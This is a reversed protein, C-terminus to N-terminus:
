KRFIKSEIHINQLISIFTDQFFIYGIAIALIITFVSVSLSFLDGITNSFFYYFLISFLIYLSTFLVPKFALKISISLKKNLLLFAGFLAVIEGVLMSAAVSEISKFLFIAVGAIIISTSRLISSFMNNKTDAKAMAATAPSIRLFRFACAAALLTLVTGGNSYKNGFVLILINESCLMLPVMSIVAILSSIELCKCYDRSFTIADSQSHSLVPLMISLSINAMLMYPVSVFMVAASYLALEDLSFFYGIILRDGKQTLYMFLGNILLPWSFSWMNLVIEKNWGWRYKGKSLFHTLLTTFTCKLIILVLIVRFDNIFYCLPFTIATVILQPILETYVSPLFNYNRQKREIDLNNLSRVLPVVSILSFAWTKDPVGLLYAVPYSLCLLLFFSLIGIFFQFAHATRMFSDSGGDPAQVIQRGLGMRANLDILSITLAFFAALGFDAKTLMRALIINRLFSLGYSIAQGSGIMLISRFIKKAFM